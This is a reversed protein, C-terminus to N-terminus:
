KWLSLHLIKIKSNYNLLFIIFAEFFVIFSTNDDSDFDAVFIVKSTFTEKFRMVKNWLSTRYLDTQDGM